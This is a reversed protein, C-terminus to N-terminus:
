TGCSLLVRRPVRRELTASKGDQRGAQSIIEVETREWRGQSKHARQPLAVELFVAGAPRPWFFDAGASARCAISPVPSLWGFAITNKGLYAQEGFHADGSGKIKLRSVTNAQAEM